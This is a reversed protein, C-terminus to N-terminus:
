YSVPIDFQLINADFESRFQLVTDLINNKLQTHQYIPHDLCTLYGYVDKFVELLPLGDVIQAYTIEAIETSLVRSIASVVAARHPEDLIDISAKRFKIDIEDAHSPQSDM